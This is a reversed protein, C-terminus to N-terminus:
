VHLSLSTLQGWIADCYSAFTPKGGLDAENWVKADTQPSQCVDTLTDPHAPPHLPQWFDM